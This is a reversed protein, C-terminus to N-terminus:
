FFMAGSLSGEVFPKGRLYAHAREVPKLSLIATALVVLLL